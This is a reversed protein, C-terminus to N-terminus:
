GRHRLVEALRDAVGANDAFVLWSAATTAEVPAVHHGNTSPQGNVPHAAEGNTHGNSHGNVSTPADTHGNTENPPAVPPAVAFKEPGRSLIVASGFGEVQRTRSVDVTETFGLDSLLEQWRPFTLLPYMPRLDTDSFRWWGDTLGFVMDIWRAPK